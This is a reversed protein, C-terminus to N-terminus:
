KKKGKKAPPPPSKKKAPPATKAPKKAKAPAKKPPPEDDFDEDDEDDDINFDLEEEVIVQSRNKRIIASNKGEAQRLRAPISSDQEEAFESDTGALRRLEALKANLSGLRPDGDRDGLRRHSITEEESDFKASFTVKSMSSIEPVFLFTQIAQPVATFIDCTVQPETEVKVAQKPPRGRKPRPNLAENSYYTKAKADLIKRAALIDKGAKAVFINKKLKEIVNKTLDLDEEFVFHFNHLRLWEIIRIRFREQYYLHWKELESHHDYIFELFNERAEKAQIIDLLKEKTDIDYVKENVFGEMIKKTEYFTLKPILKYRNPNELLETELAHLQVDSKDLDAYLIFGEVRDLYFDREDNSKAFAEMLRACQLILPNQAEPDGKKSAM